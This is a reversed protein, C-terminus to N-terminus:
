PVLDLRTKLLAPDFGVAIVEDDADPGATFVPRKVLTPHALLLETLAAGSAARATEDLNRWTTSRRNVLGDALPSAM